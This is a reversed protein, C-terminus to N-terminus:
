SSGSIVMKGVPEPMSQNPEVTIVIESTGGWGTLPLTLFVNGAENPLFDGCAVKQDGIVAWVRYVQDQPLKAVQRLVLIASEKAPVIVLSGTSPIEPILGELNLYRNNPQRLLNVAAQYRSLEQRAPQLEEQRIQELTTQAIALQEQLQQNQVQADTLRRQLHVIELSLGALIVAAIGGALWPRLSKKFRKRAAAPNSDVQAARVIRSRLTPTPSANPLALPLVALLAQLRQLETALSPDQELRQEIEAVEPPTLHNLVYGALLNQLDQPTDPSDM